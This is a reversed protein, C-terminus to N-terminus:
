RGCIAPWAGLTPRMRRGMGTQEEHETWPSQPAAPPPAPQRRAPQTGALVPLTQDLYRLKAKSGWRLYADCARRRWEAAKAFQEVRLFHRAALEAVGGEDHVFGHAAALSWAAAYHEEAADSRGQVRALEAQVQHLRHRHNEPSRAAWRQLQQVDQRVAHLLQPRERVPAQGYWALRALADVQCRMAEAFLSKEVAAAHTRAQDAAQVAAAPRGFLLHRTAKLGYLAYLGLRNGGQELRVRIADEDVVSGDEQAPWTALDDAVDDAAYGAVGGPAGELARINQLLLRGM